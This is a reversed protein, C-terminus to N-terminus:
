KAKDESESDCACTASTHYDDEEYVRKLEEKRKEYIIDMISEEPKIIDIIARILVCIILSGVCIMVIFLILWFTKLVLEEISM